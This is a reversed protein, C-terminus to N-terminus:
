PSQNKEIEFEIEINDIFKSGGFFSYIFNVWYKSLWKMFIEYVKKELNFM